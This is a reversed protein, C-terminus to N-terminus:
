PRRELAEIRDELDRVEMGIVDLENSNLQLGQRIQEQEFARLQERLPEQAEIRNLQNWMAFVASIAALSLAGGLYVAIKQAPSEM